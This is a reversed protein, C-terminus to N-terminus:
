EVGRYYLGRTFDGKAAKEKRYADLVADVAARSEDTFYFTLFFSNRKVSTRIVVSNLFSTGTTVAIFVNGAIYAVPLSM